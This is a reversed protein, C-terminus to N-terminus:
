YTKSSKQHVLYVLLLPELKTKVCSVISGEGQIWNGYNGAQQFKIMRIFTM